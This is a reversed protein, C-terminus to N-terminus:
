ACRDIFSRDFDRVKTGQVHFSQQRQLVGRQHSGRVFAQIKTAADDSWRVNSSELSSSSIAKPPAAPSPTAAEIARLFLTRVPALLARLTQEPDDATRLQVPAQAAVSALLADLEAVLATEAM